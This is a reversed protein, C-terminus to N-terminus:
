LNIGSVAYAEWVAYFVWFFISVSVIGFGLKNEPEMEIGKNFIIPAM